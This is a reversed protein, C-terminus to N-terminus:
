RKYEIIDSAKTGVVKFKWFKGGHSQSKCYTKSIETHILIHGNWITLNELIDIIEFIINWLM